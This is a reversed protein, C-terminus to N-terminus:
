AAKRREFVAEGNSFRGILTLEGFMAIFRPEVQALWHRARAVRPSAYDAEWYAPDDRQALWIAALGCYTSVGCDAYANRLLIRDERGRWGGYERLSPFANTADYRVRDVLCEYEWDHDDGESTELLRFAVLAGSPYSVSRGMAAEERLLRPMAASTM